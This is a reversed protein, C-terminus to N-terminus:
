IHLTKGRNLSSQLGANLAKYHFKRLSAALENQRDPAITIFKPPNLSDSPRVTLSIEVHQKTDGFTLDLVETHSAENSITEKYAIMLPGMYTEVGYEKHIRDKIIELHLEGM